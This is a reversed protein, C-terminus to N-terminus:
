TRQEKAPPVKHQDRTLYIARRIYDTLAILGLAFALWALPTAFRHALILASVALFQACTAAKGLGSARFDYRLWRRMTVSARYLVAMPLQLLERTLILAITVLPVQRQVYLAAIVAGVFLKDCIPDLWAGAGPPNAGHKRRAIYGDLVDTVAAAALVAFPYVARAPGAALAAWFVGGLPIRSLSLLNPVTLLQKVLERPVAPSM